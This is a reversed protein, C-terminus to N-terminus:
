RHSRLGVETEGLKSSRVRVHKNSGALFESMDCMRTFVHGCEEVLFLGQGPAARLTAPRSTDFGSPRVDPVHCRRRSSFCLLSRSWCSSPSVTVPVSVGIPIRVGPCLMPIRRQAPTASGPSTVYFLSTRAHVGRARIRLGIVSSLRLKPVVSTGLVGYLQIPRPCVLLPAAFSGCTTLEASVVKRRM